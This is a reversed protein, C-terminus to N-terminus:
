KNVRKNWERIEDISYVNDLSLMPTRHKVPNFKEIPKEGIRQTPSDPTILDPHQKELQQLGKMLLDYEKDSIEPQNLVYYCYDHHRISKRLKEIGELAKRKQM